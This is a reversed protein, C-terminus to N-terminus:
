RYDLKEVITLSPRAPPKRGKLHEVIKELMDITEETDTEPSILVRVNFDTTVEQTVEGPWLYYGDEDIKIAHGAEDTLRGGLFDYVDVVKFKKTKM